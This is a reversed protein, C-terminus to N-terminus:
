TCLKGTPPPPFWLHMRELPTKRQPSRHFLRLSETAIFPVAYPLELGARGRRTPSKNRRTDANPTALGPGSSWSGRDNGKEQRKKGSKTAEGNLPTPTPESSGCRRRMDELEHFRSEGFSKRYKQMYPGDYSQAVTITNYQRSLDTVVQFLPIQSTKTHRNLLCEILLIHLYVHYYTSALYTHSWKTTLWDEKRLTFQRM